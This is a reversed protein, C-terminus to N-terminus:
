ARQEKAKNRRKSERWAARRGCAPCYHRRGSQPKRAPTYPDGCSSCLALGHAAAATLALSVALAAFLGSGATLPADVALAFTPSRSRLWELYPVVRGWRLWNNIENALLAREGHIGGVFSAGLIDGSTDGDSPLLVEWIERGVLQEDHLAMAARVVAEARAAWRRWAFIPERHEGRHVRFDCEPPRHIGAPLGHLCLELVGWRRAFAEVAEAPADALKQFDLLLYRTGIVEPGHQGDAGVAEWRLYDGDLSIEAPVPWSPLPTPRHQALELAHRWDDRSM